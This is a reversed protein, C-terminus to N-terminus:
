KKVEIDTLKVSELLLEELNNIPKKGYEKEYMYDLYRIREATDPRGYICKESKLWYGFEVNTTLGMMDPFQRPIWFVIVDSNKYAQLEWEVQEAYTNFKKGEPIYVIGDFKTNKLIEIAEVRWSIVNNNRPTPGCLVISKKNEEIKEGYFKITM